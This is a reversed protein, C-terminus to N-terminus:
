SYKMGSMVGYGKRSALRNINDAVQKSVVQITNGTKHNSIAVCGYQETVAKDPRSGSCLYASIEWTGIMESRSIDKLALEIRDLIDNIVEASVVDGEDFRQATEYPRASIDAITLFAILILIRKM